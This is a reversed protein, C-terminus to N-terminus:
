FKFLEWLEINLAEAIRAITKITPKREAREIYGIFARNLGTDLAIDEQTLNKEGRLKVIKKGLNKYILETDIM